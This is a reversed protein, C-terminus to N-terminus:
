RNQPNCEFQGWGKIGIGLDSYTGLSVIVTNVILWGTFIIVFGIAANKMTENAKGKMGPDAGSIIYMVGGAAFALIGIGISLKMIYQIINNLGAILDCLTCMRQGSRGCKVFKSEAGTAGPIVSDSIQGNSGQGSTSTATVKTTDLECNGSADCTGLEASKSDGMNCRTGSAKGNCVADAAQVNITSVFFGGALIFSALFFKIKKDKIM